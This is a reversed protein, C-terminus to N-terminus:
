VAAPEKLFCTIRSQISYLLLKDPTVVKLIQPYTILIV